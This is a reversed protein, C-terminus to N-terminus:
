CVHGDSSLGPGAYLGQGGRSARLWLTENSTWAASGDTAVGVARHWSKAAHIVCIDAV